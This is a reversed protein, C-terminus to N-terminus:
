PLAEGEEVAFGWAQLGHADVYASPLYAYGGEGWDGGWSNRVIFYSVAMSDGDYGVLLVAHGGLAVTGTAPLAIRGEPSPAYWTAYLRVGLLVALGEDLAHRLTSSTPQVARGERLCRLAAAACAEDSPRYTPAWQDRAEDYPWLREPPQGAEALASAAAALTTGETAAPLGDRQKAAWHVFEEGLDEGDARLMEHGATAAFAVCTGRHGQDKIPSQRSRLDLM